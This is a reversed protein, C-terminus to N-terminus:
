IDEDKSLKDYGALRMTMIIKKWQHMLIEDSRMTNLLIEFDLGMTLIKDVVVCADPSAKGTETLSLIDQINQISKKNSYEKSTTLYLIRSSVMRIFADANKYSNTLDNIKRTYNAAQVDCQRQLTQDLVRQHDKISIYNKLENDCNDM